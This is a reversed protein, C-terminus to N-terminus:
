PVRGAPSAHRPVQARVLDKVAQEGGIRYAAFAAAQDPFLVLEPYNTQEWPSADAPAEAHMECWCRGGFAWVDLCSPCYYIAALAKLSVYGAIGM